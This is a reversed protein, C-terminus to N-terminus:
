LGGREWRGALHGVPWMAHMQPTLPRWPGAPAMQQTSEVLLPESHSSSCVPVSVTVTRPMDWIKALCLGGPSRRDQGSNASSMAQISQINLPPM